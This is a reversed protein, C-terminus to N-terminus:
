RWLFATFKDEQGWLVISAYDPHPLHSHLKFSLRENETHTSSLCPFNTMPKFQTHMVSNTEELKWKFSQIRIQYQWSIYIIRPRWTKVPVFRPTKFLSVTAMLDHITINLSMIWNTPMNCVVFSEKRYVYMFLCQSIFVFVWLFRPSRTRWM